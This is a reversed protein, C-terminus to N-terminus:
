VSVKMDSSINTVVLSQLPKNHMVLVVPSVVHTNIAISKVLQWLIPFRAWSLTIAMSEGVMSLGVDVAEVDVLLEGGIALVEGSSTIRM